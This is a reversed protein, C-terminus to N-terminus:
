IDHDILVQRIFEAYAQEVLTDAGPIYRSIKIAPCTNIEIIFPAGSSDMAIDVGCFLSKAAISSKEAMLVLEQPLTDITFTKGTGDKMLNTIWSGNAGRRSYAYKAVHNVVVVRFDENNKKKIYPQVYYDKILHEHEKFWDCFEVYSDLKFLGRGCAGNVPKAVLPFGISHLAKESPLELFKYYPLHRVEANSNLMASSLDKNQGCFLTEADNLVTVGMMQWLKMLKMATILDDEYAYGVVLNPQLPAGRFLFSSGEAGNIICIERPKATIGRIGWKSLVEFVAQYEIEDEYDSLFVVTKM